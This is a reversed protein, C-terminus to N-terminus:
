SFFGAADGAGIGLNLNGVGGPISSPADLFSSGGSAGGFLGGLGGGLGFGAAGVGAGILNSIAASKGLIGGARANGINQQLGSIANASNQGAQALTGGAGRGTDVLGGLRSLRDNFNQLNLGQQQLLRNNTQNNLNIGRTFEDNIFRSALGQGFNQADILRQGSGLLRNQGAARDAAINGQDRIFQFEPNNLVDNPDFNFQELQPVEPAQDIGQIFQELAGGEGTAAELFPLLDSRTLDFQRRQEKIGALSGAASAAAADKNAGGFIAGTISDIGNVPRLGKNILSM